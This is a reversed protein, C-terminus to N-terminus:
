LSSDSLIDDGEKIVFGLCKNKDSSPKDADCGKPEYVIEGKAISEQLKADLNLNERSWTTNKVDAASPYYGHAPIEKGNLSAGVHYGKVSFALVNRYAVRPLPGAVPEQQSQNNDSTSKSDSRSVFWYAAGAGVLVIVVIIILTRKSFRARSKGNGVVPGSSSPEQQASM